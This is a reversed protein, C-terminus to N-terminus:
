PLRFYRVVYDMVDTDGNQDTGLEFEELLFVGFEATGSGFEVAPTDLTNSTGMNTRAFQASLSYRQLVVDDTQGNGNLDTNGEAAESVRFYGVNQEAVIGAANPSAATGIGPFTLRNGSVLSPTTPVVDISDNDGNIDTPGGGVSLTEERFTAYFRSTSDEDEAMWTSSVPAFPAQTGHLANWTQGGQTPNHALILKRDTGPETDYDRDDAAEDVLVIWADALRVVGGSGGPISRDVAVLMSTTTVPLPAAAPNSANVWRFIDDNNDAPSDGNLNCTGSGQQDEPSVVGVFQSRLAYAIGNSEGVLGTNVVPTNMALDTLQFWHLVFDNTDVDADTCGPVVWSPNFDSPNNLSAGQSAEDVLFAVLWEGGGSVPVATPTSAPAISRQTVVAEPSAAGADLVAFIDTDDAAGDGNLIGDVTEDATLFVIDGDSGTISFSIGNTNPDTGTLIATPPDPVAGNTAVNAFKLNSEFEMTPTDASAYVVSGGIAVVESGPALDDYYVATTSDPTVYLLVRDTAGGQGNWNETDEAEDVVLFLTRRSFLIQEAAINLIDTTRSATNIRVAISDDTDMDGNAANFNTLNQSSESILFALFDGDGIPAPSTPAMALGTSRVVFANPDGGDGDDSSSCSAAGLLAAGVAALQLSGQPLFRSLMPRKALASPANTPLRMIHHGTPRDSLARARSMTGLFPGGGYPLDSAKSM